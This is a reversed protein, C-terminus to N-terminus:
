FTRVYIEVTFQCKKNIEVRLSSHIADCLANVGDMVDQEMPLPGIFCRYCPYMPFDFDTISHTINASVTVSIDAEKVM